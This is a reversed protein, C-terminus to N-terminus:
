AAARACVDSTLGLAAAVVRRFENTAGASNPEEILDFAGVRLARIWLADDPTHTLLVTRPYVPLYPEQGAAKRSAVWAAWDDWAWLVLDCGLPMEELLAERSYIRVECGCEELLAYLRRRMAADPEIVLVCQKHHM